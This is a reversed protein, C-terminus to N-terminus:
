GQSAHIITLKSIENGATWLEMQCDPGELQNHPHFVLLANIWFISKAFSEPFKRFTKFNRRAWFYASKGWDIVALYRQTGRIKFVVHYSNTNKRIDEVRAWGEYVTDHKIPISVDSKVFVQRSRTSFSTSGPCESFLTNM